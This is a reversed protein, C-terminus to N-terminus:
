QQTYMINGQPNNSARYEGVEKESFTPCIKANETLNNHKM